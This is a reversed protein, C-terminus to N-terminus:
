GPKGRNLGLSRGIRMLSEAIVAYADQHGQDICDRQNEDGKGNGPLSHLTKLM